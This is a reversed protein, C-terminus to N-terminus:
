NTRSPATISFSDFFRSVDDDHLAGSAPFLATLIYLRTGALILRVSLIGGGQNRAAFDRLAFGGAHSRSEGTLTTQTRALAGDRALDLTREADAGGAREVPPNDAWSVAFATEPGLSAEITKVPEVTGDGAYAPVRTEIASSPMEVRFGDTPRNITQWSPAAPLEPGAREVTQTEQHNQPRVLGLEVRYYYTCYLIAAVVFIGMAITALRKV